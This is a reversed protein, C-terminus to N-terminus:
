HSKKHGHTEETTEDHEHPLAGSIYSMTLMTFVLAQIFSTFCGLFLMPLHFFPIYAMTGLVFLICITIDEGRINGFLRIALSLPRSLEGIIHIVFMLPSLWWIDGAFHKLYKVGQSKFGVYHISLFVFIAIAATTNLNATPSELGPVQGLLNNLLIFVFLSGIIVLFKRGPEGMISIVYKELSEYILEAFNQMPSIKRVSLNRTAFYFFAAVAMSLLFSMIVVVFHEGGIHEFTHEIWKRNLIISPEIWHAPGLEGAKEAHSAGHGLAAEATAAVEATGQAIAPSVSHLLAYIAFATGNILRNTINFNSISM